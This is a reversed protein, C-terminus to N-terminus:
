NHSPSLVLFSSFFLPIFYILESLPSFQISFVIGTCIIVQRIITRPGGKHKFINYFVGAIYGTIFSFVLAGFRGFDIIYDSVFTSWTHSSFGGKQELAFEVQKWSAEGQRGFLWQFRREIYTMQFLGFLPPYDYYEYVLDLRNLEHSYYYIGELYIDSLVGLRSAFNFTESSTKSNFGNEYVTNKSSLDILGSRVQSIFFFYGVFLLFFLYVGIPILNKKKAFSYDVNINERNKIAAWAILIVTSILLIIISQRGASLIGGGIYALVSFYGIFSVKINEVKYYYLSNLWVLLSLGSLANGLTGILSVELDEIRFGFNISNLRFLDYIYVVSGTVAIYGVTKVNLYLVRIFPRLLLSQGVKYGLLLLFIFGLFYPLIRYMSGSFYDVGSFFHTLLM